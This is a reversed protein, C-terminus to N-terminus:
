RMRGVVEVRETNSAKKSFALLAEVSEQGVSHGPAYPGGYLAIRLASHPPCALGTCVMIIGFWPM